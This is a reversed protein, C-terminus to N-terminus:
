SFYNLKETEFCKKREERDACVCLTSSERVVVPQGIVKAGASEQRVLLDRGCGSKGVRVTSALVTVTVTVVVEVVVCKLELKQEDNPSFLLFFFFLCKEQEEEFLMRADLSSQAGASKGFLRAWTACCVLSSQTATVRM